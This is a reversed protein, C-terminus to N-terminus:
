SSIGLAHKLELLNVPKGLFLDAGAAITQAQNLRSSRGSIAILRASNPPLVQKLQRLVNLGDIQPLMLDVFIIDFRYETALKIGHFGNTAQYIEMGLSKTVAQILSGLLQDDDILLVNRKLM